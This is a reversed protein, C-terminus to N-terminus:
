LAVQKKRGGPSGIQLDNVKLLTMYHLTKQAPFL